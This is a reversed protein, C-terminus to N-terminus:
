LLGLPQAGADYDRADYTIEDYGRSSAQSRVADMVIELVDFRTSLTYYDREDVAPLQDLRAKVAERDEFALKLQSSPGGHNANGCAADYGVGIPNIAVFAAEGCILWDNKNQSPLLWFAALHRRVVEGFYAGITQATLDLMEPRESLTERVTKAYHDVLPLTDPTFDPRLEIANAVFDTLSNCLEVIQEPVGEFSNLPTELPASPTGQPSTLENPSHQDDNAM